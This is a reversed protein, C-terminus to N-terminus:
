FSSGGRAVVAEFMALTARGNDSLAIAERAAARADERMSLRQAQSMDAMSDIRDCWAQMDELPLVTIGDGESSKWPTNSSILVPTGARLAEFIIHGFNESQTPLVFLDHRAFTASVQDPRLPGHYTARIHTPLRAILARCRNWYAESEVPGYINVQM